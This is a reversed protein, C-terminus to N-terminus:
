VGGVQPVLVVEVEGELYQRELEKCSGIYSCVMRHIQHTELLMGLGFDDVSIKTYTITFTHTHTHAHTHPIHTHWKYVTHTHANTPTHYTHTYIYAHTRLTHIHITCPHTHM